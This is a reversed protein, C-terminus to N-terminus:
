RFTDARFLSEQDTHNVTISDVPRVFLANTALNALDVQHCKKPAVFPPIRSALSITKKLNASSCILM